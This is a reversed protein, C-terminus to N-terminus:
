AIRWLVPALLLYSGYILYYGAVSDIIRAAWVRFQGDSMVELIRRAATTGAISAATAIAMMAPDVSAANDILGGFYVLKAFHSAVQCFAKTAVIERRELKGGLFYTDVL